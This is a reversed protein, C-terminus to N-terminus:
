AVLNLAYAEALVLHSSDAEGDLIYFLLHKNLRYAQHKGTKKNKFVSVDYLKTNNLM